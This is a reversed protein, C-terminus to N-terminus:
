STSMELTSMGLAGRLSFVVAEVTAKHWRGAVHLDPRLLYLAGPTAAYAHAVEGNIDDIDTAVFRHGPLAILIAAFRPDIDALREIVDRQTADPEGNCFVLATFGDGAFDLLYRGDALKVNHAMAGPAPGRDFASGRDPTVSPSDLYTYPQMQRPNALPRTFEHDIALSM